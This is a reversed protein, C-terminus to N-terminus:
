RSRAPGSASAERPPPPAGPPMTRLDGVLWQAYRRFGDEGLAERLHRSMNADLREHESRERQELARHEGRMRDRLADEADRRELLAKRLEAQQRADLGDILALAEISPVGPPPGGPGPGAAHAGNAAILATLVSALTMQKM